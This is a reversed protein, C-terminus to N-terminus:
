KKAQEMGESNTWQEFIFYIKYVNEDLVELLKKLNSKKEQKPNKQYKTSM